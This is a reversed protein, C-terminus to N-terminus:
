KRLFANVGGTKPEYSKIGSSNQRHRGDSRNERLFLGDRQRAAKENPKVVRSESTLSDGDFNGASRVPLKECAAVKPFKKLQISTAVSSQPAEDQAAQEVITARCGISHQPLLMSLTTSIKNLSLQIIKSLRTPSEDNTEADSSSM